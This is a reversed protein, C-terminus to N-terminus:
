SVSPLVRDYVRSNERRGATTLILGADEVSGFVLKERGAGFPVKAHERIARSNKPADIANLRSSISLKRFRVCRYEANVAEVHDALVEPFAARTESPAVISSGRGHYTQQGITMKLLM